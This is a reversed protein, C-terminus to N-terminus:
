YVPLLHNVFMFTMLALLACATVARSTRPSFPSATSRSVFPLAACYGIWLVAPTMYKAKFPEWDWLPYKFGYYFLAAAYTVSVALVVLGFHRWVAPLRRRQFALLAASVVLFAPFVRIYLNSVALAAPGEQRGALGSDRKWLQLWVSHFFSDRVPERAGSVSEAPIRLLHAAFGWRDADRLPLVVKLDNAKLWDMNSPFVQHLPLYYRTLYLPAALAVALAVAAFPAGCERVLPVLGRRAFVVVFPLLLAFLANFKTFLGAALAFGLLAMRAVYGTKKWWAPPAPVWFLRVSLALAVTFWMFVLADYSTEISLWVLLPLSATVYLMALGPLTWLIGLTRLTDRLAFTAGIGALTSLIQSAEVEHPYAAYIVRCVLYSLPPHYAGFLSRPDPLPEFWHTARFMDIWPGADFGQINGWAMFLVNLKLLVLCTTLIAEPCRLRAIAGDDTLM